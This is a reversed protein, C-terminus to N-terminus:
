AFVARARVVGAEDGAVVVRFHAQRGPLEFTPDPEKWVQVADSLISLFEGLGADNGPLVSGVDLVVVLYSNAPMWSLDHICEGLADWNEGYYPPLQLAAGIENHLATETGCKWGRIVAVATDHRNAQAARLEEEAQEDSTFVVPSDV